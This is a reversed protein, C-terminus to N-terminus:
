YSDIKINLLSYYCGPRQPVTHTYFLGEIFAVKTVALDKTYLTHTYYGMLLPWRKGALDKTYLTHTYYGRM